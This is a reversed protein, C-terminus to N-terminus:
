NGNGAKKAVASMWGLFERNRRKAQTSKDVLMFEQYTIPPSNKRRYVNALTSAILGAHINDRYAGWPDMQWFRVWEALESSGMRSELEGVTM